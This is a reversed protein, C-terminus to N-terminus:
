MYLNPKQHLEILDQAMEYISVQPNTKLSLQLHKIRQLMYKLAPEEVGYYLKLQHTFAEWNTNLILKKYQDQFTKRQDLVGMWDWRMKFERGSEVPLIAGHDILTINMDKDYLWNNYHRDQNGLVMDLFAMKEIDEHNIQSMQDLSMERLPSERVSTNYKQVSGIISEGDKPLSAITTIPVKNIGFYLDFFYAAAERKYSQGVPVAVLVGVLENDDKLRSIRPYKNKYLGLNYKQVISSDPMGIEFKQPKFLALNQSNEQIVFTDNLTKNSNRLIAWSDDNEKKVLNDIWEHFEYTSDIQESSYIFQCLHNKESQAFVLVPLLIFFLFASYKM